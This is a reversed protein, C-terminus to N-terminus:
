PAPPLPRQHRFGNPWFPRGEGGLAWCLAPLVSCCLAPLTPTSALFMPPDQRSPGGASIPGTCGLLSLTAAALVLTGLTAGGGGGHGPAWGAKLRSPGSGSALAAAQELGALGAARGRPGWVKLRDQRECLQGNPKPARCRHRVPEFQGAFTICRSRLGESVEASAVEEDVESPKWFRHQSETRCCLWATLASALPAGPAALPRAWVLLWRSEPGPQLSQAIIHPPGTLRARSPVRERAQAALSLTPRCALPCNGLFEQCLGSGLGSPDSPLQSFSLHSLQILWFTPLARPGPVQGGPLVVQSTRGPLSLLVSSAWTGPALRPRTHSHPLAPGAGLWTDALPPSSRPPWWALWICGCESLSRGLQQRSRAGTVCTWGSPCSPHGPGSQPGSGPRRQDWRHGAPVLVSCSVSQACRPQGCGGAEREGLGLTLVHSM